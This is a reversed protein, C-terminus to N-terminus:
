SAHGLNKAMYQKAVHALSGVYGGEQQTYSRAFSAYTKVFGRFGDALARSQWEDWNDVV